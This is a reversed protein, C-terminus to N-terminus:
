LGRFAENGVFGIQTIGAKRVASLTEDFRVYPTAADSQMQLVPKTPDRAMEALREALQINNMAAGDWSTGGVSDLALLHTVPPLKAASQGSPLDIPLKHTPGPLSLMFMIMLVLMVDIMPTTNIESMVPDAVFAKPQYRM